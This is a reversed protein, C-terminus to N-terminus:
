FRWFATRGNEDSKIVSKCVRRQRYGFCEDSYVSATIYSGMEVSTENLKGIQKVLLLMSCSYGAWVM